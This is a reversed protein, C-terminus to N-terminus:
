ASGGSASPRGTSRIPRARWPPEWRDPEVVHPEGPRVVVEARASEGDHQLTVTHRGAAPRAVFGRPGRGVAEGDLLWTMNAPDGDVRGHLILLGDDYVVADPAPDVIQPSVPQQEVALPPSTVTVTRVGDSYRVTLRCEDAAPLEALNVRVVPPEGAGVNILPLAVPERGGAEWCAVIHAGRPPEPDDIQVAIDIPQRPLLKGHYASVDLRVTAPPPVMRRYVEVDGRRLTIAVTGDPVPLLASIGIAPEGPCVPVSVVSVPSIALINENDDVAAAVWQSDPVGTVTAGAPASGWWGCTFHGDASLLGTAHVVTMATGSEPLRAAVARPGAM